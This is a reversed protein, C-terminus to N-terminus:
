LGKYVAIDKKDQKLYQKLKLECDKQNDKTHSFYQRELGFCRILKEKCIPCRYEVSEISELINVMKGKENIGYLMYFFM